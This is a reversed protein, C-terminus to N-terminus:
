LSILWSVFHSLHNDISLNAAFSLEDKQLMDWMEDAMTEMVAAGLFCFKTKKNAAIYKRSIRQLASKATKWHEDAGAPDSGGKLEGLCLYADMSDIDNCNLLCIDVNFKIFPVKINYILIREKGDKTWYFAKIKEANKKQVNSLRDYNVVSNKIKVKFAINSNSFRSIIALSLRRQALAGVINRMSGGLSDGNILLFRYVLEERFSTGSPKLYKDILNQIAQQKGVTDIHQSAKASIGAATLLAGQISPLTSLQSCSTIENLQIQLDKAAAVYPIARDNKELAMELFSARTNEYPTILDKALTIHPFKSTMLSEGFMFVNGCLAEAM